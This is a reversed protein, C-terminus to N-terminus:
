SVWAFQGCFWLSIVKATYLKTIECRIPKKREVYIVNWVYKWDECSKSNSLLDFVWYFLRTPLVFFPSPPLVQLLCAFPDM